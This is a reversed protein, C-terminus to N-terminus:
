CYLQIKYLFVHEVNILSFPNPNRNQNIESKNILIQPHGIEYQITRKCLFHKKSRSTSTMFSYFKCQPSLSKTSHYRQVINNVEYMIKPGLVWFCQVWRQFFKTKLICILFPIKSEITRTTAGVMYWFLTKCYKHRICKYCLKAMQLM